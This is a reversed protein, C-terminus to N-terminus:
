TRFLRTYQTEHRMSAIDSRLAAMGIDDLVTTLARAAAVAIPAELATLVRQGDTQGLPVLRVGASVLNSVVGHLFAHLAPVLTICHGACAAAVAVPYAPPGNWVAALRQLVPTAWAAQTIQVFAQGQATTELFRERSGALAAALEAAAALAEDNGDAAARHAHCFIVADGFVSGRDIMTTLWATLTAADRIDGAEIAWELGSSYSFAGVPYAPSMWTMLRYLAATSLEGTEQQASTSSSPDLWEGCRAGEGGKPPSPQSSPPTGCTSAKRFTEAGERTWVPSNSGDCGRSQGQPGGGEGRGEGGLPPSPASSGHGEVCEPIVPDGATASLPLSAAKATSLVRAV